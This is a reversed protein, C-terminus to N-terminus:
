PIRFGPDALLMSTLVIAAVGILVVAVFALSLRVWLRNM